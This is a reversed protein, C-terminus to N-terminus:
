NENNPDTSRNAEFSIEMKFDFMFIQKQKRITVSAEGELEEFEVLRVLVGDKGVKLKPVEKALWKKAFKTYNKEEYFWSNNNWISGFGEPKDLKGEPEVIFFHDFYGKISPVSTLQRSLKEATQKFFAYSNLKAKLVKVSISTFMSQEDEKLAAAEEARFQGSERLENLFKEDEQTELYLLYFSGFLMAFTVFMVGNIVWDSM